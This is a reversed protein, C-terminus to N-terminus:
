IFVLMICLAVMCLHGLNNTTLELVRNESDASGDVDAKERQSLPVNYIEHPLRFYHRPVDTETTCAREVSNNRPLDVTTDRNVRDVPARLERHFMQHPLLPFGTPPYYPHPPLRAEEAQRSLRRQLDVAITPAIRDLYEDVDTEGGFGFSYFSSDLNLFDDEDGFLGHEEEPNAM